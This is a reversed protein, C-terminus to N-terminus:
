LFFLRLAGGFGVVVVPLAGCRLVFFLLLLVVVVVWLLAGEKRNLKQLIVCRTQNQDLDHIKIASLL